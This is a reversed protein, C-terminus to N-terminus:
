TPRTIALYEAIDAHNSFVRDAGAAILLDGQNDLNHGGGTFGLAFMGAGKAATIGHVSDEIVACQSPHIDLQEAAYIFIAPNPKGQTVADSSYIHPGFHAALGVKDLKFTLTALTSSSAVAKPKSWAGVLEQVGEICALQDQYAEGIAQTLRDFFTDDPEYGLQDLADRRIGAFFDRNHAGTYRRVFTSREYHLGFSALHELEIAQAIEESNVLVGDCDFILAEFSM